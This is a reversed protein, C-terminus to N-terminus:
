SQWAPGMQRLWRFACLAGIHPFSLAGAELTSVQWNLLTLCALPRVEEIDESIVVPVQPYHPVNDREAEACAIFECEPM